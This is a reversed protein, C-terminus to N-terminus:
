GQFRERVTGLRRPRSHQRVTRELERLAAEVEVAFGETSLSSAGLTEVIQREVTDSTVVLIRARGEAQAVLREIVEDATKGRDSFVVELGAPMLVDAPKHKAAYGDFVVTVRGGTQDAYQALVALLAARRKELSRGAPRGLKPWAHMVNYGDVLVWRGSV